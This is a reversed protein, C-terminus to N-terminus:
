KVFKREPVAALIRDQAILGNLDTIDYVFSDQLRRLEEDRYEFEIMALKYKHKLERSIIHQDIYMDIMENYINRINEAAKNAEKVESCYDDEDKDKSGNSAM